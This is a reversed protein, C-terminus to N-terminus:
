PSVFISIFSCCDIRNINSSFAIFKKNLGGWYFINIFGLLTNYVCSFKKKPIKYNKGLLLYSEKKKTKDNFYTMLSLKISWLM